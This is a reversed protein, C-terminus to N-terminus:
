EKLNDREMRTRAREAKLRGIEMQEAGISKVGARETLRGADEAKLWNHLTQGSIGLSTSVESRRQGNRVLWVAEKKFELTFNSCPTKM